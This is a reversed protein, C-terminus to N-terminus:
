LILLQKFIKSEFIQKLIFCSKMHINVTTFIFNKSILIFNIKM